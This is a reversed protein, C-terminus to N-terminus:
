LNNYTEEVFLKEANELAAKSFAPNSTIANSYTTASGTLTHASYIL